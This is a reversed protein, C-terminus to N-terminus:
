SKVRVGEPKLTKRAPTTETRRRGLALLAILASISLVWLLPRIGGFLRHRWGYSQYAAYEDTTAAVAQGELSSKSHELIAALGEVAKKEVVNRKIKSFPGELGDAISRNEYVLYAGQDPVRVFATLAYSANFYHNAYIQKSAILVQPGTDRDRKFIQIHNIAFVPKLGFKIKSWVIADDVLQLESKQDTLVGNIYGSASALARQENALSVKNRKDNYELLAADGRARYDRVYDLLMQKFLNTAALQHDASEWNVENRFREIMAASLKIQCDEVVCEKLDEIDRQEITLNQLDALAPEKGFSGIELVAANSKRTLSDRYSKLFEDASARVNVVGSVAVERKDSVSALRVVPQNTQLAALDAEDFAAKERLQKRFETTSSQSLSISASLGVLLTCLFIRTLKMTTFEKTVCIVLRVAWPM